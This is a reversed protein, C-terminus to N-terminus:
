LNVWGFWEVLIKWDKRWLSEAQQKKKSIWAELKEKKNVSQEVPPLEVVRGTTFDRWFRDTLPVRILKTM